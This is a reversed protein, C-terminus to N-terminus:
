LKRKLHRRISQDDVTASNDGVLPLLLLYDIVIRAIVKKCRKKLHINVKLREFWDVSREVKAVVLKM